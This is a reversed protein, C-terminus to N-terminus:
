SFSKAIDLPSNITNAKLDDTLPIVVGIWRDGHSLQAYLIFLYMPHQHIINSLPCYGVLFSRFIANKRHHDFHLYTKSIKVNLMSNLNCIYLLYCFRM